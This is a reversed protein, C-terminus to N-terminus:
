QKYNQIQSLIRKNLCFPLHQPFDKLWYGKLYWGVKPTTDHAIIVSSFSTHALQSSSETGTGLVHLTSSIVRETLTEGYLYVETISWEPTM